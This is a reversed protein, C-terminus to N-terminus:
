EFMPLKSNNSKKIFCWIKIFNILSFKLKECFKTDTYRQSSQSKIQFLIFQRQIIWCVKLELTDLFVQCVVTEKKLSVSQFAADPDLATKLQCAESRLVQQTSSIMHSQCENCMSENGWSTEVSCVSVVVISITGCRLM